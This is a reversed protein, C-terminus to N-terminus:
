RRLRSDKKFRQNFISFIKSTKRQWTKRTGKNSNGQQEHIEYSTISWNLRIYQKQEWNEVLNIKSKISSKRKEGQNRARIKWQIWRKIQYIRLDEKRAWDFEAETTRQIKKAWWVM